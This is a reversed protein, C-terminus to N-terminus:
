EVRRFYDRPLIDSDNELFIYEGDFYYKYKEKADKSAIEVEIYDDTQNLVKYGFNGVPKEYFSETTDRTFKLRLKGLIMELAQVQNWTLDNKSKSYQLSKDKDSVWTGILPNNENGSCSLSFLLLFIFSLKKM